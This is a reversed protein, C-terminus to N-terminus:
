GSRPTWGHVRRKAERQVGQAGKFRGCTQAAETSRGLFQRDRMASHTAVDAHEFVGHAQREEIATRLTRHRRGLALAQGFSLVAAWPVLEPRLAAAIGACLAGPWAPTLAGVGLALVLGTEMGASAWAALPLCLGLYVFLGARRAGSCLEACLRGLQAAGLLWLLGGGLAACLVAHEAGGRAFPALLYAWGLPTVCDVSPGNLNFRYGQGQALHQAVRGSILADDVSFGWALVMGVAAALAGALAARRADSM